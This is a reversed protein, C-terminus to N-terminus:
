KLKNIGFQVQFWAIVLLFKLNIVFICQVIFFNGDSVQNEEPSCKNIISSECFTNIFWEFAQENRLNSNVQTATMIFALVKKLKEEPISSPSPIKGAEVSSNENVM